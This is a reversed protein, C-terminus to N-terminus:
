KFEMESWFSGGIQPSNGRQTELVLLPPPPSPLQLELYQIGRDAPVGIPDLRRTWLPQVQVRGGAERGAHVVFTVPAVALDLYPELLMGYGIRVRTANPPVDVGFRSDPPTVVVSSRFGDTAILPKNTGTLPRLNKQLWLLRLMEQFGPTGSLDYKPYHLEYLRFTYAPDYGFTSDREDEPVLRFELVEDEKMWERWRDSYFLPLSRRSTVAPSLVFGEDLNRPIVASSM